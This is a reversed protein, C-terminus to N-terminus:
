QIVLEALYAANNSENQESVVDESDIIVGIWYRSGSSLNSPLTLSRTWTFPGNRGKNLTSSAIQTDATSITSNTSIFWKVTVSQYTGRNEATQRVKITDGAAVSYAPENLASDYPTASALTTGSADTVPTRAHRSYGNVNASWEWHYISLDENPTTRQGYHAILGNSTDESIVSETSSGNTNVVNWANGMVNFVDGEHAMGLAHGFEHLATNLLPRKGSSKYAVSDSKADTTAWAYSSDFYVDTEVLNGGSSWMWTCALSGCLSTSNTTFTVESEGNNGAVTNDNDDVLSVRMNSPNANLKSAANHLATDYDPAFSAVWPALYLTTSSGTRANNLNYAEASSPAQLLCAAALVGLSSILKTNLKITM